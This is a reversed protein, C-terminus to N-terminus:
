NKSRFIENTFASPPNATLRCRVNSVTGTREAVTFDHVLVGNDITIAGESLGGEADAYMFVIRKKAANRCYIGSTYPKRKGEIMWTSDFRIAQHNASWDAKLEIEVKAGNPGPPLHARWVGGALFAIPALSFESSASPT